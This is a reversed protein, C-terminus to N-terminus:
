FVIIMIYTTHMHSHMAIIKRKYLTMHSDCPIIRVLKFLVDTSKLRGSISQRRLIPSESLTMSSENILDKYTCQYLPTRHM